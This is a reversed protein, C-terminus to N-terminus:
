LIAITPALGVLVGAIYDERSSAKIFIGVTYSGFLALSVFWGLITPRFFQLMLLLVIVAYPVVARLDYQSARSGFLLAIAACILYVFARRRSRRKLLNRSKMGADSMLGPGSLHTLWTSALTNAALGRHNGTQRGHLRLRM